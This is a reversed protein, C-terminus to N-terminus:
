QQPQRHVIIANGKADQKIVVNAKEDAPKAAREDQAVEGLSPAPDQNQMAEQEGLALAQSFEMYTSPPRQYDAPNLGPKLDAWKVPGSNGDLRHQNEAARVQQILNLMQQVLAFKAEPTSALTAQQQGLSLAQPFTMFNSLQWDPGGQAAVVGYSAPSSGSDSSAAPAFGSSFCCTDGFRTRVHFNQQRRSETQPPSQFVPRTSNTSGKSQAFSSSALLMLAAFLLSTKM